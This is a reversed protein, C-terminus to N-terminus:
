EPWRQHFDTHRDSRTYPVFRACRGPASRRVSEEGAGPEGSKLSCVAGTDTARGPARYFRDSYGGGGRRMLPTFRQVTFFQGRVNITFLRDFDAETWDPLPKYFAVGANAFLIDVGEFTAAVQDAMHQIANVDGVDCGIGVHEPGLSAAIDTANSQSRGSIIVRAGEEVFRRASALGIGSTGGTIVAVKGELIDGM